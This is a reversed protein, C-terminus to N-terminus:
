IEEKVKEIFEEYFGKPPVGVMFLQNNDRIDFEVSRSKTNYMIDKFKKYKDTFFYINQNDSGRYMNNNNRDKIYEGDILIDILPFIENGHKNLLFDYEFGTYVMIDLNTELRIKKVLDFLESYQLFPEGGSITIGNISTQKKIRNIIEDNSIFYGGEINQGEPNICGDCRRGCGQFWIVFRNGPGLVGTKSIFHSIQPM